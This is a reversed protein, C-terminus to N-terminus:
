RLTPDLRDRLWDGVISISLTTFVIIAAPTLMIWPASQIYDRGYGVMNGLSTQPPQLGIGLFSLSSELLIVGPINLTMAVVITTSINPLIHRLYVRAPSAGIDRAAVAYGQANASIALGRAMRTIIEWGNLGLLLVFIVLSNGLFALVAIAIIMFPMALQADVMMLILQDVWGRFYAALFGLTVGIITTIVTAALAITISIRISAIVRSFVDRGLQDTGLLHEFTGGFFAPPRLRALVNTAMFDYPALWHALLAVLIMLGLWALSILVLPPWAAFFAKFGGKRQIVGGFAPAKEAKATM